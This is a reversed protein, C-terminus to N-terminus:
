PESILSNIKYLLLHPQVPKTLYVNAGAEFGLQHSEESSETTLMIVPLDVYVPQQRITRILELGDMHPMRVDTIVLSFDSKGLEELAELGDDALVTEYGEEKLTYEVVRRFSADDDVILIKESM